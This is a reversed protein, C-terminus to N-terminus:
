RVAEYRFQISVTSPDVASFEEPLPLFVKRRSGPLLNEGELGRLSEGQFLLKQLGHSVELSCNNVIAHARGRNQYVLELRPKGSGDLTIKQEVLQIDPQARAPLIYVAGVYRTLIRIASGSTRSDGMEVPVQEVLIRFALEQTPDPDGKWQLRVLQIGRPELLIRSPYVVFLDDAPQNVERGEADESRTLMRIRIAVPQATPNTLRFTQVARPGSPELDASIPELNFAFVSVATAISIAVALLVSRSGKSSFFTM